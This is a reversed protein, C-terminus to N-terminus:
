SSSITILFRSTIPSVMMLIFWISYFTSNTYNKISLIRFIYAVTQLLASAVVVWSYPKRSWFMQIIHTISTLGFLIAFFYAAGTNPCM